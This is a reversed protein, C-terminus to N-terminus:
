TCCRDQPPALPHPFLLSLVPQPSLLGRARPTVWTSAVAGCFVILHRQVFIQVTAFAVAGADQLKGVASRGDAHARPSDIGRRTGTSDMAMGMAMAGASRMNGSAGARM